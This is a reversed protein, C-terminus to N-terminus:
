MCCRVQCSFLCFYTKIAHAESVTPNAFFYMVQIEVSAIILIFLHIKYCLMGIQHCGVLAMM